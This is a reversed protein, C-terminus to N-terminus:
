DSKCDEVKALRLGLIVMGLLMAFTIFVATLSDFRTVTFGLVGTISGLGYLSLVAGRESGHLVHVLRHSSHDRGGQWPMKGKMLRLITVLTTDFIAVGLILVPSLFTVVISSSSQWGGHVALVALMYGLFLSGCDGMFIKAPNFNYRLFGLCSGALSLCLLATNTKGKQITLVFIALAAIITIGSSLGDMNDLLNLANMLGVIWFVTLFINMWSHPLIKSVVGSYAVGSAIFVQLVFKLKPRTGYIDDWAGLAFAACGGLLIVLIERKLEVGLLASLLFSIFIAIGGMLAIPSRHWRSETPISLVDLRLMIRRVIPTLILSIILSFFFCCYPEHESWFKGFNRVGGLFM